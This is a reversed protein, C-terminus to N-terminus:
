LGDAGTRAVPQGDLLANGAFVSNELRQVPGVLLGQHGGAGGAITNGVFASHVVGLGGSGAGGGHTNM